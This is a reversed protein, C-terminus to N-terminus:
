APDIWDAASPGTQYYHRLRVIGSIPAGSNIYSL